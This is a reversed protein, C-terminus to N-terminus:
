YRFFIILLLAIGVFFLNLLLLISHWGNLIKFKGDFYSNMIILIFLTICTIIYFLAIHVVIERSEQFARSYIYQDGNPITNVDNFIFKNYGLIFFAISRSLYVIIFNLINFFTYIAIRNIQKKRINEIKGV